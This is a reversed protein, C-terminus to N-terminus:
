FYRLWSPLHKQEEKLSTEGGHGPFLRYDEKYTMIKELSQKMLNADSYPLDWRGISKFFLFDGSFMLNEGVFEIMTCGPTHGPLFHFKFKLGFLEIENENDILFDAKHKEFGQNYPDQLFFEDNKHIYIPINFESRIKANDWVHDFHGHTNLIALPKKVHLKIFDYANVGPDIIFEGKHTNLIYCNTEYAGCAQKLIQM